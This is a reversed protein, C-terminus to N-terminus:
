YPSSNFKPISPEEETKELSTQVSFSNNREMGFVLSTDVSNRTTTNKVEGMSISFEVKMAKRLENWIFEHVEAESQANLDGSGDEKIGGGDREIADFIAKLLRKGDLPFVFVRNAGGITGSIKGEAKVGM